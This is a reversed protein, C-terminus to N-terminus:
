LKGRTFVSDVYNRKNLSVTTYCQASIAKKVLLYHVIIPEARLQNAQRARRQTHKATSFDQSYIILHKHMSLDIGEAYSTAQLIKARKFIERLKIGEGIYNYMIVVDEIDGFHELIYDVKERNALIVPRGDIKATGGELMHLAYRLKSTTDAILLGAQLEIINDELLV